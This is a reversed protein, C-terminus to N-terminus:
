IERSQWWRQWAGADQGFDRGRAFAHLSEHANSRVQEDADGLAGILAPVAVQADQHALLIASSRRGVVDGHALLDALVTAGDHAPVLGLGNIAAVRVKEPANRDAIRGALDQASIRGDRYLM